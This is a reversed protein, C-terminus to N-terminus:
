PLNFFKETDAPTASATEVAGPEDAAAKTESPKESSEESTKEAPKEPQKEDDDDDDVKESKIHNGVIESVDSITTFTSGPVSHIIKKLEFIEGRTIVCYLISKNDKSIM